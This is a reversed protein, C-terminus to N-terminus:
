TMSPYIKEPVVYGGSYRIAMGSNTCSKVTILKRALSIGPEICQYKVFIETSHSKGKTHYGSYLMQVVEFVSYFTYQCSQIEM